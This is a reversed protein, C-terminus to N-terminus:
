IPLPDIEVIVGEQIARDGAFAIQMSSEIEELSPNAPVDEEIMQLLYLFQARMDKVAERKLNILHYEETQADYWEILDGEEHQVPRDAGMTVKIHGKTGVFEKVNAGSINKSWGAEFYAVAGNDLTMTLMGYNYRAAGEDLKAGCGCVKVIRSGSIWQALDIYHIGCDVIPSTKSLISRYRTWNLTHHNQVVRLVKLEGIAGNRILEAVKRYTRSHRLIYGVLVKSQSARIAGICERLETMNDSLPKECLVHKGHAICDLLIPVHTETYTAIIFIDAAPDDLYDRYNTSFGKAGYRKAFSAAREKLVDVAAIFSLQPLDIIDKIHIEGIYGCGILVVGYQKKKEMKKM